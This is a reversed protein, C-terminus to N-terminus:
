EQKLGEAPGGILKLFLVQRFLNLGNNALRSERARVPANIHHIHLAAFGDIGEIGIM